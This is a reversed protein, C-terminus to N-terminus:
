IQISRNCTNGVCHLAVRASCYNTLSIEEQCLMGTCCGLKQNDEHISGRRCKKFCRCSKHCNGIQKKVRSARKRVSIRLSVLTHTYMASHIYVIYELFNYSPCRQIVLVARCEIKM